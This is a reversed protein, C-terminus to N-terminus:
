ATFTLEASFQVPSEVRASGADVLFQGVYIGLSPEPMVLPTALTLPSPGQAIVGSESAGYIALNLPRMAPDSWTLTVSVNGAGAPVPAEHYPDAFGAGYCTMAGDDVTCVWLATSGEWTETTPEFTPQMPAQAADATMTSSPSEGGPAPDAAPEPSSCGSLALLICALSLARVIMSDFGGEAQHRNGHL